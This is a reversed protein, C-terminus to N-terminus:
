LKGVFHASFTPYCSLWCLDLKMNGSVQSTAPAIGNLLHTHGAECERGNGLGRSEETEASSEKTSFAEGSAVEVKPQGMDQSLVNGQLDCEPLTAPPSSGTM